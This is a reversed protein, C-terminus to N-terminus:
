QERGKMSARKCRVEEDRRKMDKALKRKTKMAM